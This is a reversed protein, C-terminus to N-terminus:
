IDCCMCAAHHCLRRAGDKRPQREHVSHRGLMRFRIGLQAAAPVDGHDAGTCASVNLPAEPLEVALVVLPLRLSRGPLALALCRTHKLIVIASSRHVTRGSVLRGVASCQVHRVPPATDPPEM